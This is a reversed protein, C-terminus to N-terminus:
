KNEESEAFLYEFPQNYHNLLKKIKQINISRHGNLIYSILTTSVGLLDAIDQAKENHKKMETQFNKYKM